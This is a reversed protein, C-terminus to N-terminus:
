RVHFLSGSYVYEYCGMDVQRMIRDIRNHGDLDRADPMWDMQNLGSNICPSISKLRYNAAGADVFEPDLDITGTVVFGNTPTVCSNVLQCDASNRYINADSAANNSMSITNRIMVNTSGNALWIGGNRLASNGAVTCNEVVHGSGINIGANTNATNGTILSNRVIHPSNETARQLYIGAYYPADNGRIECADMTIGGSSVYVAGGSNTAKNGAFLTNYVRNSLIHTTVNQMACLGGGSVAATNSVVQCGAIIFGQGSAHSRSYIGGGYSASVNNAVVCNSFLADVAAYVYVGAGGDHTDSPQTTNNGSITSDLLSCGNGTIFVGGGDIPATNATINCQEARAGQNLVLGGGGNYYSSHALVTNSRIECDRISGYLVAAGAGGRYIVESETVYNGIIRCDRILAYRGNAYVGGGARLATNGSIICNSITGGNNEGGGIYVGGGLANNAGGAGNGNTITFGSVWAGTNNVYFCASNNQGDIMTTDPDEAGGAGCSRLTVAKFVAINTAFQYTAMNTVLIIDGDTAANVADQINTAAGAWDSYKGGANNTGAPSVHLVDQAVARAAYGALLFMVFMKRIM